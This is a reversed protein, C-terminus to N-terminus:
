KKKKSGPWRIIPPPYLFFVVFFAAAGGAATLTLGMVKGQLTVSDGLVKGVIIGALLGFVVRLISNTERWFVQRGPPSSNIAALVL